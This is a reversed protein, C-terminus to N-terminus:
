LVQRQSYKGGWLKAKKVDVETKVWDYLDRLEEFLTGAAEEFEAPSDWAGERFEGFPAESGDKYDGGLYDQVIKDYPHLEKLDSNDAVKFAYPVRNFDDGDGAHGYSNRAQACGM